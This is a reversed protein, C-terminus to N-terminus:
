ARLTQRPSRTMRAAPPRRRPSPREGLPACARGRRRGRSGWRRRCTCRQARRRPRPPWCCNRRPSSPSAARSAPQAPPQLPPPLRRTPPASRPPAPPVAAQAQPQPPRRAQALIKLLLELRDLRPQADANADVGQQACDVHLEGQASIIRLPMPVHKPLSHFACVWALQQQM